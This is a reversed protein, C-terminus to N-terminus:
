WGMRGGRGGGSHGMGRREDFGGGRPLFGKEIGELMWEAQEETIRGDELAQQIADERQEARADELAGRVDELNVGLDEAVDAVTEGDHLRSFLQEPDLGLAEAVGDFRNWFAESFGGLLGDRAGRPQWPEELREPLETQLRELIEAKREETLRGNEVAENLRAEAEAVAARVIDDVDGGHAEVFDAVTEGDRLAEIVEEVSLDLEDAVIELVNGVAGDRFPGGRAPRGGMGRDFMHDGWPGGRQLLGSQFSFSSDAAPDERQAYAIGVGGLLLVMVGVAGLLVIWKKNSLM